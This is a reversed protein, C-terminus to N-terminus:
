QVEKYSHADVAHKHHKGRPPAGVNVKGQDLAHAQHVGISPHRQCHRSYGVDEHNGYSPECLIAAHLNEADVEEGTDEELVDVHQGEESSTKDQAPLSLRLILM